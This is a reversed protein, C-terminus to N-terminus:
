WRSSVECTGRYKYSVINDMTRYMKISVQLSYRHFYSKGKDESNTRYITGRVVVDVRIVKFMKQRLDM